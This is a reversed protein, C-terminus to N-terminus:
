NGDELVLSIFRDVVRDWDSNQIVYRRGQSGMRRAAQPNALLYELCSEFEWYDSFFLGGNGALCHEVTVACDAHVLVPTGQVWSEMVAISFSENVSPQCTALAAAYAGHKTAEPVFGLDIIERAVEQPITVEGSGALVLKLAKANGDKARSKFRCFYDILLQTNKGEARRGVYLLFPEDIGHRNRFVTADGVVDTDIGEGLLVFRDDEVGYLRRALSLEARSHFLVRRFRSMMEQMVGMRAYGEDHLCPILYSASPAVRSGWYTTGYLYPIFVFRFRDRNRHIHAYLRDSGVMERMFEVEEDAHLRAGHMLRLNLEAFRRQPYRNLRFRRVTIGREIYTGERHFDKSWGSALDRACTTLVEVKIGRRKLNLALNRAETEAGGM